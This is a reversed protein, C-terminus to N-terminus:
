KMTKKDYTEREEPSLALYEEKSLRRTGGAGGKDHRAPGLIKKQGVGQQYGKKVAKQIAIPSIGMEAAVLSAAMLEGRPDKRLDPDSKWKETAKDYFEQNFNEGDMDLSPWTKLMQNNAEVTAQQRKSMKGSQMKMEEKFSDREDAILHRIAELVNPEFLAAHTDNFRTERKTAQVNPVLTVNGQDDTMMKLGSAELAQKVAASNKETATTKSKLGELGSAADQLAQYMADVDPEDGFQGYKPEAGAGADGGEGGQGGEENEAGPVKGEGGEDGAPAGGQGADGGEEGEGEGLQSFLISILLKLLDM